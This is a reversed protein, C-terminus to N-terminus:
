TSLAKLYESEIDDVYNSLNRHRGDASQALSSLLEPQKLLHSIRAALAAADGAPFSFGNVGEAVPETLGGLASVLVPTGAALASCLVLPASEYWVSPVVLLHFGRLVSGIEEHPFTGAFRVEGAIRSALEKLSRVYASSAVAAGYLDLRVARSREGLQILAELIVHAGKLEVLSWIFGLQLPREASFQPAMAVREPLTGLEVGYPIVRVRGPDIGHRTLIEALFRTSVFIKTATNVQEAMKSPRERLSRVSSLKGSLATLATSSATHALTALWQPAASFCRICDKGDGPGSCVRKDFERFLTVKPCVVWFDTATFFTPVGLDRAGSLVRASFGLVHNFHVIDPMFRVAIERFLGVRSPADFHLAIPDRRRQMGYHLRHVVFEEYLHQTLWAQTCESVEDEAEGALIQVSHGRGRLGRALELTLVETGTRSGPFFQHVCLLVKM